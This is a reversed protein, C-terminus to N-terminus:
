KDVIYKIWEAMKDINGQITWNDKVYQYANEGVERRLEESDILKKLAQYWEDETRALFGRGPEILEKYQRIDSYVGPVKGASFELYKIGSKCITAEDYALPVVVIDTLACMEPWLKDIYEYVDPKGNIQKYRPGAITVWEPIWNGITVFDVNDYEKLIRKLGGVFGGETLDKWHTSSGAHLITIREKKEKKIKKYDYKNLDVYNCIVKTKERDYSREAFQCIKNRLVSNTTTVYQSHHLISTLNALPETGKHYNKFVPNDPTLQWVNDDLDIVIKCNNKEGNFGMSVYGWPTDIYSTLIIDWYKTIEDWNKQDKTFPDQRIEVEFEDKPLHLGPLITRYYDVGSTTSVNDKSIKMHTELFLCRIKRNM